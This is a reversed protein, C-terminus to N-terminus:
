RWSFRSESSAAVTSLWFGCQRSASHEFARPHCNNDLAPTTLKTGSSINTRPACKRGFIERTVRQAAIVCCEILERLEGHWQCWNNFLSLRPYPILPPMRKSDSQVLVRLIGGAPLLVESYGTEKGYLKRNRLKGSVNLGIPLMM